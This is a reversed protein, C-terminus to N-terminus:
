SLSDVLLLVENGGEREKEEKPKEPTKLHPKVTYGRINEQRCDEERWGLTSAKSTHAVVALKKWKKNTRLFLMKYGRLEKLIM